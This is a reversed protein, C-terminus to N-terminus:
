QCKAQCTQFKGNIVINSQHSGANQQELADAIRELQETKAITIAASYGTGGSVLENIRDMTKSMEDDQKRVVSAASVM